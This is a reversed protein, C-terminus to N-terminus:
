RYDFSPEEPYYFFTTDRSFYMEAFIIVLSLIALLM